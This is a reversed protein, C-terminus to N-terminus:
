AADAGLSRYRSYSEQTSYYPLSIGTGVGVDLIRGGIRESAAIAARRGREFVAGFVLDSVPAWRGYIKEVAQKDIDTTLMEKAPRISSDLSTASVTASTERSRPTQERVESGGTPAAAPFDPLTELEM